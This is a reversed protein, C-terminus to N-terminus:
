EESEIDSEVAADTIEVVHPQFGDEVLGSPVEGVAAEAAERTIFSGWVLRFCTDGNTPDTKVTRLSKRETNRKRLMRQLDQPECGMEVVVGWDGSGSPVPEAADDGGFVVMAVVVIVLLLVAAVAGLMWTPIKRRFPEDEDLDTGPWDLDQAPLSEEIPELMGTAVLAAVLRIVEDPGHPSQAAIDEATREGTIDAVILDAEESLRLPAYLELFGGARRLAVGREPLIADAAHHETDALILEVVAHTVSITAGDAEPPEDADLRFERNPDLLWNHLADQVLEKATGIAQTEPLGHERSLARAEALLEDEGAGECGLRAALEGIDLGDVRHIRGSRIGLLVEGGTWSLRASGVDRQAIWRGFEWIQTPDQM